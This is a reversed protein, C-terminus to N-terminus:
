ATLSGLLGCDRSTIRSGTCCAGLSPRELWVRCVNLGPGLLKLNPFDGFIRSEGLLFDFGFNPTSSSRDVPEYTLSQVADYILQRALDVTKLQIRLARTLVGVIDIIQSGGQRLGSRSRILRVNSSIRCAM